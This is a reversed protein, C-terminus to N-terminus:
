MPGGPWGGQNSSAAGTFNFSVGKYSFGEGLLAWNISPGGWGRSEVKTVILSKGDMIADNLDKKETKFTLVEGEAFTKKGDVETVESACTFTGSERALAVQGMKVELGYINNGSADIGVNVNVTVSGATGSGSCDYKTAYELAATTTEVGVECVASDKQSGGNGIAQVTATIKKTKDVAAATSVTANTFNYVKNPGNVTNTFNFDNMDMTEVVEGDAKVVFQMKQPLGNTSLSNIYYNNAASIALKGDDLFKATFGTPDALTGENSFKLLGYESGQLESTADAMVTLILDGKPIATAEVPTGSDTASSSFSRFIITGEVKGDNDTDALSTLSGIQTAWVYHTVDDIVFKSSQQISELSKATTENIIESVGVTYTSAGEVADFSVKGTAVDYSINTPTDLQTKKSCSAISAVSALLLPCLLLNISKKM